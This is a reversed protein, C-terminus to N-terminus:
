DEVVTGLVRYTKVIEDAVFAEFATVACRLLQEGITWHVDGSSPV